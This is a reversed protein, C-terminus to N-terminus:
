KLLQGAIVIKQVQNTGEVIQFIKADRMLKEVPYERMYGYGGHIQVADTTISMAVDSAYCKAIASAKSDLKGADILQCAYRTYQRALETKMDMDALMFQIVQNTVIPKGFTVREKAYKVSLDIAHQALGVAGAAVMPRTSDLTKMVIKFGDGEKGLLNSGPIRVNDFVLEVTNTLRIGMKDEEKGVSIGKRDAEVLFASLGKVGKTKDTIALVTYVGAMGGNTIFCKTGNIIYEEGDRLATTKIASADSGAQPETLAFSAFKGPVVIDALLKIQNDNGAILVPKCALESAAIALSFGADVRALEEIILSTTVSDLGTGGFQTPFDAVHLGMEFAKKYVDMPIEGNKDAEAMIPAVENQAFDRVMQVIELQEQTLLNNM